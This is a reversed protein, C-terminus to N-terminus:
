IGAKEEGFTPEQCLCLFLSVIMELRQFSHGNVLGYGYELCNEDDPGQKHFRDEWLRFLAFKCPQIRCLLM